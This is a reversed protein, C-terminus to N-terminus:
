NYKEENQQKAARAQIWNKVKALGYAVAVQVGIRFLARGVAALGALM